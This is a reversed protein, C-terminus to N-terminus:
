RHRQHTWLDVHLREGFISTYCTRERGLQCSYTNPQRDGKATGLCILVPRTAFDADRVTPTSPTRHDREFFPEGGGADTFSGQEPRNLGIM